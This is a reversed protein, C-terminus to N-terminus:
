GIVILTGSKLLQVSFLRDLSDIEQIIDLLVQERAKTWADLDKLHLHSQQALAM